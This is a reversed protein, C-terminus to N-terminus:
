NNNLLKIFHQIPIMYPMKENLGIRSGVKAGSIIGIVKGTKTSIVPSGSNGSKVDIDLFTVSNGNWTQNSSVYGKYFSINPGFFNSQPMEYGLPYGFVVVEEGLEPLIDRQEIPLYGKAYHEMKLLAIDLESNLYVVRGYGSDYVELDDNRVPYGDGIIITAYLEEGNKIGEVVHACTIAYGDESIIFGTGCSSEIENNIHLLASQCANKDYRYDLILENQKEIIVNESIKEYNNKQKFVRNRILAGTSCLKKYYLNEIKSETRSGTATKCVENILGEEGKCNLIIAMTILSFMSNIEKGLKNLYVIDQACIEEIFKISNEDFCISIMQNIIDNFNDFYITRYQEKIEWDVIRCIKLKECNVVLAINNNLYLTEDDILLNIIHAAVFNYFVEVDLENNHQLYKDNKIKLNYDNIGKTIQQYKDRLEELLNRDGLIMEYM